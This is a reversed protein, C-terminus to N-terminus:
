KPHAFYIDKLYLNYYYYNKVLKENLRYILLYKNSSVTNSLIIGMYILYLLLGLVIIFNLM